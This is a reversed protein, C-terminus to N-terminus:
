AIHGNFSERKSVLIEPPQGSPRSFSMGGTGYMSLSRPVQQINKNSNTFPVLLWALDLSRVKKFGNLWESGCSTDFDFWFEQVCLSFFFKLCYSQGRVTESQMSFDKEGYMSLTIFVNIDLEFLFRASLVKVVERTCSSMCCHRFLRMRCYRYDFGKFASTWEVRLYFGSTREHRIELTSISIGSTVLDATQRIPM